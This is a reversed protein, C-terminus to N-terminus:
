WIRDPLPHPHRRDHIYREAVRGIGTMIVIAFTKAAPARVGAYGNVPRPSARTGARFPGFFTGTGKLRM